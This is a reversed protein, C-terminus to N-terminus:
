SYAYMETAARVLVCLGCLSACRFDQVSVGVSADLMMVVVDARRLARIARVVSMPEAGDASSSVKARRRIGATDILKIPTGDPLVVESDVADRTTGSLDSVIARGTGAIANVLSSKGVNPRGVIAVALPVERVRKEV